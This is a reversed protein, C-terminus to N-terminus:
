KDETDIATKEAWGFGCSCNRHLHPEKGYLCGDYYVQDFRGNWHFKLIRGGCYKTEVHFSLCVPCKSNESFPRISPPPDPWVTEPFILKNCWDRSCRVESMLGKEPNTKVQKHSGFFCLIHM